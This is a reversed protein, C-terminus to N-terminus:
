PKTYHAGLVYNFRGEPVIYGQFDQLVEPMPCPLHLDRRGDNESYHVERIPHGDMHGARICAEFAETDGTLKAHALDVLVGVQQPIFFMLQRMEAFGNGPYGPHMNEICVEVGDALLPGALHMASWVPLAHFSYRSLGLGKVADIVSAALDKGPIIPRGTYPCSITHHGIVERGEKRWRECDSAPYGGKTFGVAIEIIAPNVADIREVVENWPTPRGGAYASISAVTKVQTTREPSGGSVTPV